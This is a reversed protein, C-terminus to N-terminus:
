KSQVLKMVGGPGYAGMYLSRKFIVRGYQRWVATNRPDGWGPKNELTWDVGNTSSYVHAGEELNVSYAYLVGQYAVFGFALNNPNGLGDTTVPEWDLGNRTRWIEGGEWNGMGIYLYAGLRGFSWTTLNNSDGFGDMTVKEWSKGDFSRMIQAPREEGDKTLVFDSSVYLASKYIAFAAIGNWDSFVAVEDWTGPDGSTSRFLRADVIGDTWTCMGTYFAGQFTSFGGCGWGYEFRLVEEWVLGDPSRMILNPMSEDPHTLGLYLQNNFVTMFYIGTYGEKVSNADWAFSWNQGDTTGWVQDSTDVMIQDGTMGWWFKFYMKGKFVVGSDTGTRDGLVAVPDFVKEWNPSGPRVPYPRAPKNPLPETPPIIQPENPTIPSPGDPLMPLPAAASLGIGIMLVLSFLWVRTKM